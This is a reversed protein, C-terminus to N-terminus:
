EIRSDYSPMRGFRQQLMAGAGPVRLLCIHCYQLVCLADAPTGPVVLNPRKQTILPDPNLIAPLMSPNNRHIANVLRDMQRWQSDYNVLNEDILM